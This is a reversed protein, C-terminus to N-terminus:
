PQNLVQGVLARTMNKLQHFYILVVANASTHEMRIFNILLEFFTQRPEKKAFLFEDRTLISKLRQM